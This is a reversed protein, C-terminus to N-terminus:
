ILAGRGREIGRGLATTLCPKYNMAKARLFENLPFRTPRPPSGPTARPGRTNGACGATISRGAYSDEWGVPTSQRIPLLDGLAVVEGAETRYHGAELIRLTEQGLEAARTRSMRSM